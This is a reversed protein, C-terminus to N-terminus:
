IRWVARIHCDSPRCVFFLWLVSRVFQYSYASDSESCIRIFNWMCIKM